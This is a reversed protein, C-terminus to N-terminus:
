NKAIKLDPSIFEQKKTFEYHVIDLQKESKPALKSLYPCESPMKIKKILKFKTYNSDNKDHSARQLRLNVHWLVKNLKALNAVPSELNKIFSGNTCKFASQIKDLNDELVFRVDSQVKREDIFDGIVLEHKDGLKFYERMYLKSLINLVIQDKDILVFAEKSYPNYQAGHKLIYMLRYYNLETRHEHILPHDELIQSMEDFYVISLKNYYGLNKEIFVKMDIKWKRPNNFKNFQTKVQADTYKPDYTKGYFKLSERYFKAILPKFQENFERYAKALKKIKDKQTEPDLDEFKEYTGLPNKTRINDFDIGQKKLERTLNTKLAFLSHSDFLRNFYLTQQVVDDYEIYKSPRKMQIACLIDTKANQENSIQKKLPVRGGEGDDIFVDNECYIFHDAEVPNRCRILQQFCALHNTSRNTFYGMIHDFHGKEVFSVGSEITPSFILVDYNKWSSVDTNKDTDATIMSVKDGIEKHLLLYLQICIKKSNSPIILKKGQKILEVAKMFFGYKDSIFHMIWDQKVFTNRTISMKEEGIYSRFFRICNWNINASAAIINKTLMIQKFVQMSKQFNTFDDRRPRETEFAHTFESIVMPLEDIFVLEYHQLYEEIKWLSQLQISLFQPIDGCRMKEIVPYSIKGTLPDIKNYCEAKLGKYNKSAIDQSLSVRYNLFLVKKDGFKRFIGITKQTDCTSSVLQINRFTERQPVYGIKHLVDKNKIVEGCKIDEYEAVESCYVKTWPVEQVELFELFADLKAPFFNISDYIKKNERFNIEGDWGFRSMTENILELREEDTYNVFICKIFRILKVWNVRCDFKYRSVIKTAYQKGAYIRNLGESYLKNEACALANKAVLQEYVTCNLYDYKIPARICSTNELSEVGATIAFSGKCQHRTNAIGFKNCNWYRLLSNKRYVCLDIVHKLESHKAIFTEWFPLQDLPNKFILQKDDCFTKIFIRGSCYTNYNFTCYFKSKVKKRFVQEFIKDFNNYIVNYLKMFEKSTLKGTHDDLDAFLICENIVEHFTLHEYVMSLTAIDGTLWRKYKDDMEVAIKCPKDGLEALKWCLKNQEELQLFEAEYKANYDLDIKKTLFCSLNTEVEFDTVMYLIDNQLDKDIYYKHRDTKFIYFYDENHGMGYENLKHVYRCYNFNDFCLKYMYLHGTRKNKFNEIAVKISGIKFDIALARDALQCLETFFSNLQFRQLYKGYKPSVYSPLAIPLGNLVTVQEVQKSEYEKTVQGLIIPSYFIVQKSEHEKTIEQPVFSKFIVEANMKIPIKIPKSVQMLKVQEIYFKCASNTLHDIKHILKTKLYNAMNAYFPKIEANADVLQFILRCLTPQLDANKCKTAGRLDALFWNIAHHNAARFIIQYEKYYQVIADAANASYVADRFKNYTKSM